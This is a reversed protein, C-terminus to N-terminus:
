ALYLSRGIRTAELCPRPPPMLWTTSPTWESLLHTGRTPLPNLYSTLTDSPSDISLTRRRGCPHALYHWPSRCMLLQFLELHCDATETESTCPQRSRGTPLGLIWAQEGQCPDGPGHRPLRLTRCPSSLLPM